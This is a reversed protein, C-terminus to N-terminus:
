IKNGKKINDLFWLPQLNTYNCAKLFEERITLNIKSLPTIHDINWCGEKNGYNDWTMGPQFKSELHLKLEDISCGLDKIASGVKINQKLVSGIRTRLNHALKYNLDEKYRKSFYKQNYDTRHEKYSKRSRYEKRKIKIEEKNDQHYQLREEKNDIYYQNQKTKLKEKNDQYYKKHYEKNNM